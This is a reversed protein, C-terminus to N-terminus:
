LPGIPQTIYCVSWPRRAAVPFRSTPAIIWPSGRPRWKRVSAARHRIRTTSPPSSTRRGAQRTSRARNPQAPTRTESPSSCTSRVVLHRAVRRISECVTSRVAVSWPTCFCCMHGRHFRRRSARPESPTGSPRIRSPWRRRALHRASGHSVGTSSPDDPAATHHHDLTRLLPVLIRHLHTYSYEPPETHAATM